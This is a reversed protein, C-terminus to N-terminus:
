VEDRSEQKITEQQPLPAPMIEMSVKLKIGWKELNILHRFIADQLHKKIEKLAKEENDPNTIEYEKNSITESMM